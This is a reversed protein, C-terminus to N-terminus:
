NIRPKAFANAVAAPVFPTIDGKLSAIERVLSSSIFLNNESPTLFVTEVENDLKRNMGALQFEYEFDSAARLGRLVVKAQERQALEVLLCDFGVVSVNVLNEVSCKVLDIRKDFDFFPSKGHNQAVAIVVENFLSSARQVIDFHGNTFPDFTGPYIAKIKM